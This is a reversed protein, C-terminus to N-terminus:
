PITKKLATKYEVKATINEDQNHDLITQKIQENSLKGWYNAGIKLTEKAEDSCPEFLKIHYKKCNHFNNNDVTSNGKNYYKCSLKLNTKNHKFNNNHVSFSSRKSMKHLKIAYDEFRIFQNNDIDIVGGGLMWVIIGSHRGKGTFKKLTNGKFVTTGGLMISNCAIMKNNIVTALSTNRVNLVRNCNKFLSKSVWIEAQRETQIATYCDEITSNVININCGKTRILHAPANRTGKFSCYNFCTGEQTTPNYDNCEKTFSFGNWDSENLGSFSIRQRATGIAILNGSVTMRTEKSFLVKTGPEITLIVGKLVALDITIIYPSNAKTWKTNNTIHQGIYTTAHTNTLCGILMFILVNYKHFLM